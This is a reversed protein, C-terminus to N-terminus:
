NRVKYHTAFFDWILEVGTTTLGDPTKIERFWEHGGSNITYFIVERDPSGACYIEEKSFSTEQTQPLGACGNFSAWGTTIKADNAYAVIPDALGHISLVAVPQEQRDDARYEASVPAIAALRDGLKMAVLHSLMGGNSFGTAYVRGADIPYTSELHDLLASIFGVDDVQSRYAYGCCFYANYTFGDTPNGTPNTGDPYVAIFGQRDSLENFGRSAMIAANEGAGHFALVLPLNGKVVSMPPLHILYTRNAGNVTLVQAYTGSSAKLAPPSAPMLTIFQGSYDLATAQAPKFSLAGMLGFVVLGLCTLSIIKNKLSKKM